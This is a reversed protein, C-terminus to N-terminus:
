FTRANLLTLRLYNEETLNIREEAIIRLIPSGNIKSLQRIAEFGIIDENLCSNELNVLRAKGNAIIVM